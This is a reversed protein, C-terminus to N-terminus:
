TARSPSPSTTPWPASRTPTGAPSSTARAPTSSSTSGVGDGVEYAYGSFDITLDSGDPINIQGDCSVDSLLIVTDGSKSASIAAELSPFEADGVKAVMVTEANAAETFALLTLLLAFLTPVLGKGMRSGMEM